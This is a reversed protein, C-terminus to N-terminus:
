QGELSQEKLSKELGQDKPPVLLIWIEGGGGKNHEDLSREERHKENTINGNETIASSREMM